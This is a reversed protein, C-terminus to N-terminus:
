FICIYLNSSTCYKSGLYDSLAVNGFYQQATFSTATGPAVFDTGATAAALASSSGKLVGSISTTLTLAPTAGGSSTGAFGNASAISVATVTGSGKNNFTNWDTSTLYGSVSTTAAPM